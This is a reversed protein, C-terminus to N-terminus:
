RYTEPLQYAGGIAAYPAYERAEEETVIYGWRTFIEKGEASTLLDLFRQASDKDQVFTSIAGTIYSLRPIQEPELYVVEIKDPNWRSSIRWGLIADVRKLVLLVAAKSYSEAHTVVNKQVEEPLGNYDLIEVAYLGVSVAEPNAIGVEIGPKALDSLKHIGKPNGPQVLIAPVLYSVIKVTGPDVINDEEARVMYDPSGPIYLDGSRSLKMQSLMTGSGGFNLYVEIGTKQEFAKAAEELAPKSASGSFVTLTKEEGAACGTFPIFILSGVLLLLLRRKMSEKEKKGEDAGDM